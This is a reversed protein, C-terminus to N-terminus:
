SGGGALSGPPGHRPTSAQALALAGVDLDVLEDILSRVAPTAVGGTRTAALLRRTIPPDLPRSVIGRSPSRAVALEPLVTIASGAEVFALMAAADHVRAIVRPDFGARRCESEVTHAFLSSRQETIIDWEALDSWRVVDREALPNGVPVVVVLHDAFLETVVIGSRRAGADWGLDDVIALDIRGAHLASLSQEGELDEVEVVLSPHRERLRAIVPPLVVGVVSPFAAVRVRGGPEVDLARLAAGAQELAVFVPESREVLLVGAATLSVGRGAKELLKRGTERELAALQQSVASPTLWLADAAAAVSGHAAVERLVRLRSVNLFPEAGM